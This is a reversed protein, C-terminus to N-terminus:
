PPGICPTVWSAHAPGGSPRNTIALQHGREDRLGLLSLETRLRVRRDRLPCIAVPLFGGLEVNMAAVSEDAIPLDALIM